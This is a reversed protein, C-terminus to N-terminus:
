RPEASARAHAHYAPVNPNHYGAGHPAPPNHTFTQVPPHPEPVPSQYNNPNYRDVSVGRTREPIASSEKVYSSLPRGRGLTNTKPWEQSVFESEFSRERWSQPRLTQSWTPTATYTTEQTKSYQTQSKSEITNEWPPKVNDPQQTQAKETFERLEKRWQHEVTEAPENNDYYYAPSPDPQPQSQQAQLKSEGPIYTSEPVSIYRREYESYYTKRGPQIPPEAITVHRVFSQNPKPPIYATPTTKSFKGTTPTPWGQDVDPTFTNQPPPQYYNQSNDVVYTSDQEWPPPVYSSSRQQTNQYSDSYQNQTSLHSPTDLNGAWNTPKPTTYTSYNQQNSYTNQQSSTNQQLNDTYSSQYQPQPQSQTIPQPHYQSQTQYTPQPQPPQYVPMTQHQTQYTSQPQPQYAPQSPPQYVPQHQKPQTWSPAVPEAVPAVNNYIMDKKDTQQYWQQNTISSPKVNEITLIEVRPEQSWQNQQEVTQNYQQTNQYIENTPIQRETSLRELLLSHRRESTKPESPYVPQYPRNAPQPPPPFKEIHPTFYTLTPIAQPTSHEYGLTKTTRNVTVINETRNYETLLGAPKEGTGTIIETTETRTKTVFNGAGIPKIEVDEVKELPVSPERLPVKPEQSELKESKIEETVIQKLQEQKEVILEQKEDSENQIPIDVEVAATPKEITTKPEEDKIEDAPAKTEEVPKVSVEDKEPEIEEETYESEEDEDKQAVKTTEREREIKVEVEKEEAEEYQEEEEVEEAEEEKREATTAELPVEKEEEEPEIKKTVEVEQKTVVETVIETKSVVEAQEDEEVQIEEEDKVPHQASAPESQQKLVVTVPEAEEIEEEEVEEEEEEEENKTEKDNQVIVVKKTTTTKTESREETKIVNDQGNERIQKSSEEAKKIVTVPNQKAEKDDVEEVVVEGNEEEEEEIEEEEEDDKPIITTETKTKIETKGDITTKTITKKVEEISGDPLTKKSIEVKTETKAASNKTPLKVTMEAETDGNQNGNQNETKTEKKVEKTVIKVQKQEDNYGVDEQIPLEPVVITEPASTIETKTNIVFEKCEFAPAVCREERKSQITGSEVDNKPVLTFDQRGAIMNNNNGVNSKIIESPLKNEAYNNIKPVLFYQADYSIEPLVANSSDNGPFIANYADNGNNIFPTTGLSGCEFMSSPRNNNTQTYPPTNKNFTDYQVPLKNNVLQSSSPAVRQLPPERNVPNSRTRLLSKPNAPLNFTPFVQVPLCNFNPVAITSAPPSQIPQMPQQPVGENMANRMLRKAMRESKIESLDLGGPTYTFPKRDRSMAGHLASPPNM